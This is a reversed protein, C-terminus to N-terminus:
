QHSRKYMAVKASQKVLWALQVLFSGRGFYVMGEVVSYLLVKKTISLTDFRM